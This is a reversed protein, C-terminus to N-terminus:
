WAAAVIIALALVAVVYSRADRTAFLVPDDDLLGRRALFWIRMVWYLMAPCILWLIEPTAYLRSVDSSSIFLCLVLVSVLGSSVGVTEIMPIDEVQYDRRRNRPLAQDRAQILEAHRKVLALSLFFFASFALLWPSVAVAGAVGGALIRLTYLSALVLVDLLLVRKFFVSYSLTTGMYAVLMLLLGKPAWALTVALAGLLIAGLLAVAHGIGLEGSAIPRERKKPHARDSEFDLLDNLIYGASAVACFLLFSLAVGGARAGDSFEHALILPVLLLGNKAWQRLRLASLWAPMGRRAPSSLERHRHQSVLSRRARRGLGAGLAEESAQWIPKDAPSDGIYAFPSGELRDQIAELKAAGKLNRDGETALVGQFIGLFDAVAQVWPLPSASALVLRRGNAAAARCYDLVEPRYPLSEPVPAYLEAMRGKLAARGGLWWFPIMLLVWPRRGLVAFISEWLLDSRILTGDLDVVLVLDSTEEPSASEITM